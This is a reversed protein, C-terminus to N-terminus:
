VAILNLFLFREFEATIAICKDRAEYPLRNTEFKSHLEPHRVRHLAMRETARQLHGFETTLIPHYHPHRIILRTCHNFYTTKKNGLRNLSKRCAVAYHTSSSLSVANKMENLLGQRLAFLREELNKLRSPIKMELSAASKTTTSTHSRDNQGYWVREGAVM